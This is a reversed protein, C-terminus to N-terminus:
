KVGIECEVFYNYFFSMTVCHILIFLVLFLANFIKFCFPNRNKWYKGMSFDVFPGNQGIKLDWRPPDLEIVLVIFCCRGSLPKRCTSVTQTLFWHKTFLM